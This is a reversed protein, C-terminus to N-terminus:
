SENINMKYDGQFVSDMGNPQEELDKAIGSLIVNNAFWSTKIEEGDVKIGEGCIEMELKNSINDKCKYVCLDFIISNSQIGRPLPTPM